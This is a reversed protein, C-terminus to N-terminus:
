KNPGTKILSLKVYTEVGSSFSRSPFLVEPGRLKEHTYRTENEMSLWLERGKSAAAV